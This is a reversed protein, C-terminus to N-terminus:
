PIPAVCLVRFGINVDRFGPDLSLRYACRAYHRNGLWSGGRAVRQGQGDDANERGDGAVYPYPRYLSGTWEFANGSM